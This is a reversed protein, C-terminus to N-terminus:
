FKDVLKLGLISKAHLDLQIPSPDYTLIHGTQCTNALYRAMDLEVIIGDGEQIQALLKAGPSQEDLVKNPMWSVPIGAEQDLEKNYYHWPHVHSLSWNGYVTIPIDKFSLHGVSPIVIEADSIFNSKTPNPMFLSYPTLNYLKSNKNM